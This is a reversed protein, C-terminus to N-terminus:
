IPVDGDEDERDLEELYRRLNARVIGDVVDAQIHSAAEQKGRLGLHYYGTLADCGEQEEAPFLVVAVGQVETGEMAKMTELLFAEWGELPRDTIIEM